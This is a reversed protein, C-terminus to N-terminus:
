RYGSGIFNKHRNERLAMRRACVGVTPLGRIPNIFLLALMSVVFSVAAVKALAPRRVDFRLALAAWATGLVCVLWCLAIGGSRLLARIPTRSEGESM